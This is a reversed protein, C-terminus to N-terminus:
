LLKDIREVRDAKMKGRMAQRPTIGVLCARTPKEKVPDVDFRRHVNGAVRDSLARRQKVTGPRNRAADVEADVRSMGGSAREYQEFTVLFSGDRLQGKGVFELDAVDERHKDEPEIRVKM